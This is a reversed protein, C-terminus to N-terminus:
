NNYIIDLEIINANRIFEYLHDESLGLNFAILSKKVYSKRQKSRYKKIKIPM